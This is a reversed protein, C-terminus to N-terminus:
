SNTIMRYMDKVLQEMCTKDGITKRFFFEEITSSSILRFLSITSLLKLFRNEECPYQKNVYTNLLIQAQNHLYNITNIDNLQSNIMTPCNNSYTKFLVFNKLCALENSDAKMHKLKNLIEQLREIDSKLIEYKDSFPMFDNINITFQQEVATLIFLDRWSEELLSFKVSIISDLCRFYFIYTMKLKVYKIMFPYHYLHQYQRLGILLM